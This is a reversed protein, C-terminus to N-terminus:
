PKVAEIVGIMQSPPYHTKVFKLGSKDFLESFEKVTRERGTLACLMHIDFLKSFHPIHPEPVIHEVVFVRAGNNSTKSINSLIQICEEDSWDHLIMKMMYADARPVKAFMDGALYACRDSLGMKNAWLVDKDKITNELELVAGKLNPHKQLLNCILHGHGGGIDCLHSFQSFDYEDLAELVWQTHTSSYSSMAQNFISSYESNKPIYDFIKTGFERVFGDQKGDKVMESLHKWIAYHEPGEELLTVASLSQPHDKRLFKGMPTIKFNKQNDEELLGISGLARLLRYSLSPDINLKEAIEKSSMESDIIEFVGLKVGTYTIQSKWRGFVLDVVNQYDSV